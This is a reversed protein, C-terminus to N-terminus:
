NSNRHDCVDERRIVRRRVGRLVCPGDSPIRVDRARCFDVHSAVTRQTVPHQRHFRRESHRTRRSRGPGVAGGPGRTEHRSFHFKTKRRGGVAHVCIRPVSRLFSINTSGRDRREASVGRVATICWLYAHFRAFSAHRTVGDVGRRNRVLSLVPARRDAAVFVDSRCDDPIKDIAHAM